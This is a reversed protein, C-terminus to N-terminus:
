ILSSFFDFLRTTCDIRTQRVQTNDCTAFTSCDNHEESECEDFDEISIRSVKVDTGLPFRTEKLTPELLSRLHEETGLSNPEDKDSVQPYITNFPCHIAM